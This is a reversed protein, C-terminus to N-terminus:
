PVRIGAVAVSRLESTGRPGAGGGSRDSLPGRPVSTATRRVPAVRRESTSSEGGSTDHAASLAQCFRPLALATGYAYWRPGCAARVGFTGVKIGGLQLDLQDESQYVLRFPVGACGLHAALSSLLLKERCVLATLQCRGDEASAAPIFLEVTVGGFQHLDDGAPEDRICPAWGIYGTADPLLGSVWLRVFADEAVRGRGGSGSERGRAESRRSTPNSPIRPSWPLDVLAYGHTRTWVDVTRGLLELSNM